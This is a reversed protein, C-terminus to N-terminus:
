AQWCLEVCVHSVLQFLFVADDVFSVLIYLWARLNGSQRIDLAHLTQTLDIFDVFKHQIYTSSINTRFSIANLESRKEGGHFRIPM